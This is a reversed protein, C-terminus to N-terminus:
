VGPQILWSLTGKGEAAKGKFRVAAISGNLLEVEVSGGIMRYLLEFVLPMHSVLVVNDEKKFGSLLKLAESPETDGYLREDVVV